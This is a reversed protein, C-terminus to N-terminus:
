NMRYTGATGTEHISEETEKMGLVVDPDSLLWQAGAGM